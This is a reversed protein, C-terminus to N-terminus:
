NYTENYYNNSLTINKDRYQLVDFESQGNIHAIKIQEKEKELLSEIKHEIMRPTNLHMPFTSRVWELMEQMATKM